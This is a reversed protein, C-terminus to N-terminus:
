LLSLQNPNARADVLEQDIPPNHKPDKCCIWIKFSCPKGAIFIPDGHKVHRGKRCKACEIPKFPFHGAVDPEPCDRTAPGTDQPQATM